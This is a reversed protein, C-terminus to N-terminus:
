GGAKVRNVGLVMSCAGDIPLPALPTPGVPFVIGPLGLATVVCALAPLTVKGIGGVTIVAAGGEGLITQPANIQAVNDSTVKTSGGGTTNLTVNGFGEAQIDVDGGSGSSRIRLKRGKGMRIVRDKTPEDGDGFDAAPRKSQNWTRCVIVPGWSEEGMPVAVLVNDGVDLPCWDGGEDDVYCSGVKATENKGDPKYRIDALMDGAEDHGLAIVEACTFWIRPDIGPASVSATSRRMDLNKRISRPRRPAKAM